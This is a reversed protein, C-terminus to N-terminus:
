GHLDASWDSLRDGANLSDLAGFAGINDTSEIM